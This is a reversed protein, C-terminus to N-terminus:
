PQEEGRTYLTRGGPLPHARLWRRRTMEELVAHIHEPADAYELSPLWSKVIGEWTDAAFAHDRLYRRIAECLARRRAAEDDTPV